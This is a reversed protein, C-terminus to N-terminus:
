DESAPQGNGGPESTARDIFRVLRKRAVPGMDMTQTVLEGTVDGADDLQQVAVRVRRIDKQTGYVDCVRREVIAM